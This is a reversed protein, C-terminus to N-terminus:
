VRIRKAGTVSLFEPMDAYGACLRFIEGALDFTGADVNKVSIAGERREVCFIARLEPSAGNHKGIAHHKFHVMPGDIRFLIGHGGGTETRQIRRCPLLAPM